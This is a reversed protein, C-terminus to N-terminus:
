KTCTPCPESPDCLGCCGAKKKATATSEKAGDCCGGSKKATAPTAEAKVASGKGDCTPCPESPDCFGCCGAKEVKAPVEGAGATAQTAAWVTTGTALAGLVLLTFLKVRM